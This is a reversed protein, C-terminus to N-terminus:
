KKSLRREIEYKALGLAEIQLVSLKEMATRQLATKWEIDDSSIETTKCEYIMIKLTDVNAWKTIKPREQDMWIILDEKDIDIEFQRANAPDEVLGNNSSSRVTSSSMVKLFAQTGDRREVGIVYCEKKV